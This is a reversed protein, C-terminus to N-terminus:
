PYRTYYISCHRYNDSEYRPWMSSSLVSKFCPSNEKIEHLNKIKMKKRENDTVTLFSVWIKRACQLFDFKEM